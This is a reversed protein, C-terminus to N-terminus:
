AAYIKIEAISDPHKLAAILQRDLQASSKDANIGLTRKCRFRSKRIVMENPDSFGPNIVFRVSESHNGCIISMKVKHLMLLKQVDQTNWDSSVGIICDARPSIEEDRTFEFTTPHKGSVNIHGRCKFSCVPEPTESPASAPNSTRPTIKEFVASILFIERERGHALRKGWTLPIKKLDENTLVRCDTVRIGVKMLGPTIKKEILQMTLDPLARRRMEHAEYKRSYSLLLELEAGPKSIACLNSLIDPETHVIGSLLSGWPLHVTIKDALDFLEEPLSEIAAVVYIANPVGGREPKRESKRSYECLSQLDADVAICLLNPNAKAMQYIFKGDGAGIDVIVGAYSSALTELEQRSM